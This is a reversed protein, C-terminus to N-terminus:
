SKGLVLALHAGLLQAPRLGDLPGVVHVHLDRALREAEARFGSRYMITTRVLQQPADGVGGIVYGLQSLRAAGATAAGAVGNGNLVLVSTEDRPLTPPAVVALAPRPAAAVPKPRAAAKTAETKVHASVGRGLLYVGVGALLVLEVLAVAAAVITARRWRLAVAADM